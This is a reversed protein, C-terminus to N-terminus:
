GRSTLEAVIGGVDYGSRLVKNRFRRVGRGGEGGGAGAFGLLGSRM